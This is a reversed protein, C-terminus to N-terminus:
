EKKLEEAPNTRAAKLTQWFVALFSIVLAIVAAVVFVWGYNDIRYWFQRLYREALFISIPVGILIAIGVLIMYETVSRRTESNVTGGFVKRVAIDRTTLRTYYASMAVLGLLSILTALLLFIEILRIFDRTEDLNRKILEPIPGYSDMYSENGTLRISEQRGIEMLESRVEKDLRNLKIITGSQGQTDDIAVIGVQNGNMKAPNTMAIDGIIGGIEKGELLYHKSLSEPIVPNEEDIDFVRMASESFWASGFLPRHYDRIVKFGFMEFAKVDCNLIGIEITGEEKTIGMMIQRNGPYGNTSGIRDVYPKAALEDKGVVGCDLFYLDSVDVGLPMNVLHNYQLEMVLALAILTVTIVNQVVIFIKSFVTKTQRRQEGKIISVPDNRFSMRAPILGSVIGVALALAVYAAIYPASTAVDLAIAGAVYRNFVPELAKALLLAFVLCFVVFGVSEKVYRWAVKSREEGLTSRIAMEKARKGALAVSLNIYNFLASCLLLIGIAILIRILNLNGENLFSGKKRTSFYLESVPFTLSHEPPKIKYLEKYEKKILTDILTRAREQDTGEKFRILALSLPIGYGASVFPQVCYDFSQYVDSECIVSREPLRTIGGIVCTDRSMVLTMGLLNKYNTDLGRAFSESIIVQNRDRIVEPSGEMFEFNFFRFFEPDVALVRVGGKILEGNFYAGRTFNWSRAATEVEPVQEAVMDFAGQQLDLYEDGNTVVFSREHDPFARTVEFQQWVYCSIIVVFALSVILGAAEIATYLKNRSLFKLYSRM